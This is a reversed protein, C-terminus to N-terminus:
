PQGPTDPSLVLYETSCYGTLANYKVLAWKDNTLELVDGGGGVPIKGIISANLSPASRINLNLHTGTYRFTYLVTESATETETEPETQVVTETESEASTETETEFTETLEEEPASPTSIRIDSSVHAVTIDSNRKSYVTLICIGLICIHLISILILTSKKNM